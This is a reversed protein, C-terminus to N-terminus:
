FLMKGKFQVVTRWDEQCQHLEEQLLENDNNMQETM